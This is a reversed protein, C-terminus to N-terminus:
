LFCPLEKLILYKAQWLLQTDRCLSLYQATWDCSSDFVAAKPGSEAKQNTLKRKQKGTTSSLLHCLVLLTYPLIFVHRKKRHLTSVWLSIFCLFSFNSTSSWKRYSVPPGTNRQVRQVAEVTSLAGRTLVKPCLALRVGWVVVQHIICDKSTCELIWNSGKLHM